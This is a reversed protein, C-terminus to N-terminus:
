KGTKIHPDLTSNVIEDQDVFNCQTASYIKGEHEKRAHYRLRRVNTDIRRYWVM